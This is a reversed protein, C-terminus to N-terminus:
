PRQMITKLNEYQYEWGGFVKMSPEWDYVLDSNLAKIPVHGSYNSCFAENVVITGNNHAMAYPPMNKAETEDRHHCIQFKM